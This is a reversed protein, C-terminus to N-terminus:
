RIRDRVKGFPEDDACERVAGQGGADKDVGTGLRIVNGPAHSPGPGTSVLAKYTLLKGLPEATWTTMPRSLSSPNFRDDIM